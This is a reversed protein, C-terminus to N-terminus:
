TMRSPTTVAALTLMRGSAYSPSRLIEPVFRHLVKEGRRAAHQERKNHHQYRSGDAPLEPAIVHKLRPRAVATHAGVHDRDGCVNGAQDAVDKNMVIFLYAFTLLQEPDILPAKLIREILCFGIDCASLGSIRQAEPRRAERSRLRM